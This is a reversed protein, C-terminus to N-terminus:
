ACSVEQIVSRVPSSILCDSGVGLVTVQAGTLGAGGAIARVDVMPRVGLLDDTAPSPLIPRCTAAWYAYLPADGEPADTRDRASM